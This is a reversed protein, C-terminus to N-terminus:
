KKITEPISNAHGNFTDRRGDEDSLDEIIQSFDRWLIVPKKTNDNRSKFVNHPMAPRLFPLGRKAAHGGPSM